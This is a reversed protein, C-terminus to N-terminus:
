SKLFSRTEYRWGRGKRKENPSAPSLTLRSGYCACQVASCSRSEVFYLASVAYTNPALRRKRTTLNGDCDSSVFSLLAIM